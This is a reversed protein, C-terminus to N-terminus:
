FYNAKLVISCSNSEPLIYKILVIFYFYFFSINQYIEWKELQRLIIAFMTSKKGM